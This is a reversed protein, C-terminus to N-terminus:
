RAPNIYTNGDLAILVQLPPNGGTLGVAYVTYFRNPKIRVNPVNLVVQNTGTPRAQLTYLGPDVTIYSTAEKFEVDSFLKTGDPLTIDVSPANPSIHVFKVRAKGPSMPLLRDSVPLIGLNAASGVAAVTFISGAPISINTSLIPNATQGTPLVRINYSGAPVPFYETFGKYALNRAILNENAYIDVAPADPSAHLLRIFPNQAVRNYVGRYPCCPSSYM